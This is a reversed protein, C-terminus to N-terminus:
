RRAVFRRLWRTLQPSSSPCALTAQHPNPNPNPQHSNPNPNPNSNPNPDPKSSPGPNPGPHPDPHPDGLKMAGDGGVFVNQPKLDRHLLHLDHHFYSLASTLEYAM